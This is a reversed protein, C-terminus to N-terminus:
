QRIERSAGAFSTTGCLLLVAGERPARPARSLIPKLRPSM